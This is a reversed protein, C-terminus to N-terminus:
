EPWIGPSIKLLDATSKPNADRIQAENATVINYSAELKKVGESSAVGTVVITELGSEDRDPAADQQQQAWLPPSIAAAAIILIGGTRHAKARACLCAKDSLFFKATTM